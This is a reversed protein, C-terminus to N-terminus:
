CGKTCSICCDLICHSSFFLILVHLLCAMKVVYIETSFSIFMGTIGFIAAAIVIFFTRLASLPGSVQSFADGGGGYKVAASLGDSLLFPNFEPLANLSLSSTPPRYQVGHSTPAVFANALSATGFLLMLVTPRMKDISTPRTNMIIFRIRKVGNRELM